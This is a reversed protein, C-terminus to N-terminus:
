EDEKAAAATEKKADKPEATVEQDDKAADATKKAKAPAAEKGEEKKEGGAPWSHGRPRPLEKMHAAHDAAHDDWYKMHPASSFKEEDAKQKEVVEKAEKQGKNGM